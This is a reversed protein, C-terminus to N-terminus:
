DWEPRHRAVAESGALQAHERHADMGPMVLQPHPARADDTEARDAVAASATRHAPMPEVRDGREDTM